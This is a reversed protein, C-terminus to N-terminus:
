IAVSDSDFGIATHEDYIQAPRRRPRLLRWVRVIGSARCWLYVVRTSVGADFRKRKPPVRGHFTHGSM